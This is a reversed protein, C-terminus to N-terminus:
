ARDDRTGGGRRAAREADDAQGARLASVLLGVVLFVSGMLGLAVAFTRAPFPPFYRWFCWALVGYLTAGVLANFLVTRSEARLEDPTKPVAPADAM